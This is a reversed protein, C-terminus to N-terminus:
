MCDDVLGKWNVLVKLSMLNIRGFNEGIGPIAKLIYWEKIHM